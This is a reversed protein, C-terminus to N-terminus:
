LHQTKLRWQVRWAAEHQQGTEETRRLGLCRWSGQVRVLRRIEQRGSFFHGNDADARVGQGGEARQSAEWRERTTEGLLFPPQKFGTPCGGGIEGRQAGM